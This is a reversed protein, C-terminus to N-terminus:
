FGEMGTKFGFRLAQVQFVNDARVLGATEIVAGLPWADHDIGFADPVAHFCFGVDGFNHFPVNQVTFDHSAQEHRIM